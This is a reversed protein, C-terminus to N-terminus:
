FNSFRLFKEFFNIHAM